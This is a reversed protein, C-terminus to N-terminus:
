QLQRQQHPFVSTTIVITIKEIAGDGGGDEERANAGGERRSPVDDEGGETIGCAYRNPAEAVAKCVCHIQHHTSHIQYALGPLPTNNAAATPTQITTHPPPKVKNQTTNSLTLSNGGKSSNLYSIWRVCVADGIIPHASKVHRVPRPLTIPPPVPRKSQQTHPTPPKM